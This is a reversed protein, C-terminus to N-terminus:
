TSTTVAPLVCGLATSISTLIVLKLQHAIAVSKCCIAALRPPLLPQWLLRSRGLPIQRIRNRLEGGSWQWVLTIRIVELCVM